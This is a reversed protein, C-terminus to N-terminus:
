EKGKFVNVLLITVAAIIAVVIFIGLMGLGLYKLGELFMEPQFTFGANSLLRFM